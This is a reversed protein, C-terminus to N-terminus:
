PRTNLQQHDKALEAMSASFLRPRNTRQRVARTWSIAGAALFLVTLGTLVSLRYSSWFAAVILVTTLIVGIGLCFLAVLMTVLLSILREWEDELDTSLLDLRTHSIAVLSAALGRLSEFLGKKEPPLEDSM